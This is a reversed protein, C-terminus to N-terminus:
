RCVQHSSKSAPKTKVQQQAEMFAKAFVEALHLNTGAEAAKREPTKNIRYRKGTHQDIYYDCGPERREGTDTMVVPVKELRYRKTQRHKEKQAQDRPNAPRATKKRYRSM